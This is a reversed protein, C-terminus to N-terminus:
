GDGADAPLDPGGTRLDDPAVTHAHERVPTDVAGEVAAVADQLDADAADALLPLRETTRDVRYGDDQGDRRDFMEAIQEAISGRGADIRTVTYNEGDEHRGVVGGLRTTTSVVYGFATVRDDGMALGIAPGRAADDAREQELCDVVFAYIDGNVGYFGADELDDQTLATLQQDDTGQRDHLQDYLGTATLDTRDYAEPMGAAM